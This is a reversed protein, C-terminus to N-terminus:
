LHPLTQERVFRALLESFAEPRELNSLHGADTLVELRADPIREFLVRADALPTLADQEGVIVLTPCAIQPLLPTSDPRLAMGRALAAVGEGSNAAAMARARQVTDLREHLTVHGFLKPTDRDFVAVAGQQEALRATAERGERGQETDATARTDALVLGRVRAAFRRLCAFAAYGGLSLGGLVVSALGLADLLAETDAALQDMTAPGPTAKSEGCGRFDPAVVRLGGTGALAQGQPAWMRRNLPFAHLLVLGTDGEGWADYGLRIGNVEIVM